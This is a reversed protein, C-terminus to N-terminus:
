MAVNTCINLDARFKENIYSFCVVATYPPLNPRDSLSDPSIPSSYGDRNFFLILDNLGYRTVDIFEQQEQQTPKLCVIYASLAKTRLICSYHSVFSITPDYAFPFSLPYTLYVKM